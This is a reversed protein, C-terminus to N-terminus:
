IDHIVNIQQSSQWYISASVCISSVKLRQLLPYLGTSDGPRKAANLPMEVAIFWVDNGLFVSADACLQLWRGGIDFCVSFFLNYFTVNWLCLRRVTNRMSHLVIPNLAVEYLDDLTSVRNQTQLHSNHASPSTNPFHLTVSEHVLLAM